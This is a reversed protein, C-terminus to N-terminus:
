ILTRPPRMAPPSSLGRFERAQSFKFAQGSIRTIGECSHAPLAALAGTGCVFDCAIGGPNADSGGCAKCDAMGMAPDKATIMSAAMAASGAAHAVTSAAFVALFAILILRAIPTM